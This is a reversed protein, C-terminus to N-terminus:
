RKRQLFLIVVLYVVIVIFGIISTIFRNYVYNTYSDIQQQSANSKALLKISEFRLYNVLLICSIVIIGVLGYLSLNDYKM